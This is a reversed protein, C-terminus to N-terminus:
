PPRLAARVAPDALVAKFAAIAAARAADQDVNPLVPASPASPASPQTVPKEAPAPTDTVPAEQTPKPLVAALSNRRVREVRASWGKGYKAWGALGRLHDLRENCIQNILIKPDAQASAAVTLPGVEGDVTTDVFQQLVKAARHVGQLVGYDFVAYDVGAPLQDCWLVNWYQERYIAVIQDQPAEWVDAPLGPHAQRWADWEKQQIGRSTRGGPDDPDDDNGGESALLLPMVAQFRAVGALTPPADVTVKGAPFATDPWRIALCKSKLYRSQKVSNSQNGGRCLYYDGDEGEYLTVHHPFVLVAGLRPEAIAVGFRRWSNAYMWSQLQDNPNFPPRYGAKAMAYAIEVGCWAQGTASTYLAAYSAQEPFREGVFRAKAVIKDGDVHEEQGTDERVVALWPPVTTDTM